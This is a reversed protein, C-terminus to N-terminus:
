RSTFGHSAAIEEEDGTGRVHGVAHQARHHDRHLIVAGGLKRLERARQKRIQLADELRLVAFDEDEGGGAGARPFGREGVRKRGVIVHERRAIPLEAVQPDVHHLAEPELHLHDVDLPAFARRFRADALDQAGIARLADLAHHDHMVFGGRAHRAVDSGHTARHVRRLM